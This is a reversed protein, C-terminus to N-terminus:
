NLAKTTTATIAEVAAAAASKVAKEVAMGTDTPPTDLLASLKSKIEAASAKSSRTVNSITQKIDVVMKEIRELTEDHTTSLSKFNTLLKHNATLAHGISEKINQFSMSLENLDLEPTFKEQCDQCLPLMFTRLVEEHNRQVGICAAHYTRKCNGQCRWLFRNDKQVCNVIGCKM